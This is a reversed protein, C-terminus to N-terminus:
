GQAHLLKPLLRCFEADVELMRTLPLHDLRFWELAVVDSGNGGPHDPLDAEVLFYHCLLKAGPYDPNSHSGDSTFLHRQIAASHGTEEWFERLLGQQPTEGAEIAGGPFNIITRDASKTHCMLVKPGRVLVAYAGERIRVPSTEKPSIIQRM